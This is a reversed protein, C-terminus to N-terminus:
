KHIIKYNNIEDPTKGYFLAVRKDAPYFPSNTIRSAKLTIDYIREPNEDLLLWVHRGFGHRGKEMKSKIGMEQLLAQAMVAHHRCVGYLMSEDMIITKNGVRQAMLKIEWEEYPMVKIIHRATRELLEDKREQPYELARKRAWILEKRLQNKQVRFKERFEGDEIERDDNDEIQGMDTYGDMVYDPIGKMPEPHEPFVMRDLLIELDISAELYRDVREKDELNRIGENFLQHTRYPSIGHLQSAKELEEKNIKVAVRIEENGSKVIPRTNLITSDNNIIIGILNRVQPSLKDPHELAYVPNTPNHGTLKVIITNMISM